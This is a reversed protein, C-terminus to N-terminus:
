PLDEEDEAASAAPVAGTSRDSGDALAAYAALREDHRLREWTGDRGSGCMRDYACFRCAAWSNKWTDPEGPNAPFTGARIGAVAVGLVHRVRDRQRDDIPGGRLSRGQEVFWYYASAVPGNLAAESALAYLLLQVKHGRDTLDAEADPTGILPIADFGYGKGTKYDLVVFRGDAREDVRDVKGAFAVEEGSPLTVRLPEAGDRGFAMEVAVPWRRDTARLHSDIDLVRVLVRRLRAAEARWLAPRGTVGAAEVAAAEQGLVAVAASVEDATWRADPKRPERGDGPLHAALFRELAAHVLTGREKPDITDRDAADELDGIRLIHEFLYSAPCVAWRELATASLAHDARDLLPGALPRVEGLWPGYAGQARARVAERGRQYRADLVDALGSHALAIDLEHRSAATTAGRLSAEFSPHITLWSQATLAPLSEASVPTGALRAAEEVLWPSPVQCRQGRVDAVAYSLVVERAGAVAALHARREAQRRDATTLLRDGDDPSGVLVRDADRLVPHERLRPPYADDTMGVVVLVDLDAGALDSVPTVLVGQGLTTGGPASRDLSRSLASRLSDATPPPAVGDMRRLGEVAGLVAEYAGQEMLVHRRVMEPADPAGWRETDRAPGLFRRIACGLAAAAAAWTTASAAREAHAVVDSVMAALAQVQAVRRQHRADDPDPPGTAALAALRPQWSTAGSVRADRSIRDWRASPVLHGDADLVPGDSLWRILDARRYGDRRLDLLGTVLRGTATQALTTGAPAHHPVGAEDLVQTLIRLHPVAGRYAIAIREPRRGGAGLHEVVTRAALRVEEEADPAVVVRVAPSAACGRHEPPGLIASLFTRTSAAGDDDEGTDCAIATLRDESALTALLRRDAPRLRHPAFLIVESAPAHGATIAAVAADLPDVSDPAATALAGRYAGYLAAVEAARPSGSSVLRDLAGRHHADAGDLEALLATVIDATAFHRTAADALAGTGRRLALRAARDRAPPALPRRGTLVLHRAALREALQPLSSFRVNALGHGAVARRVTVGVVTTPVVVDVPRLPDDAQADVVAERLAATAAPGFPVVVLRVPCSMSPVSGLAVSM